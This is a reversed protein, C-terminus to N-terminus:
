RHPLLSAPLLLTLLIPPPVVPLHFPHPHRHSALPTFPVVCVIVMMWEVTRPELAQLAGLLALRRLPQLVRM